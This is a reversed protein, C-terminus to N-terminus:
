HSALTFNSTQIRRSLRPALAWTGHVSPGRLPCVPVRLLVSQGRSVVWPWRGGPRCFRVIHKYVLSAGKVGRLRVQRPGVLTWTAPFSCSVRSAGVLRLSVNPLRASAAGVGPSDNPRIARAYTTGSGSGPVFASVFSAQIAFLIGRRLSFNPPRASM